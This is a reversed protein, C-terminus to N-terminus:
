IYNPEAKDTRFFNEWYNAPPIFRVQTKLQQEVQDPSMYTIENIARRAYIEFREMLERENYVTDKYGTGIMKARVYNYIAEKYNENDPILPLGNEDSPRAMYHLRVKGDSFSTLLYDLEVGYYNTPQPNCTQQNLNNTVPQIDSKYMLNNEDYYTQNPTAEIISKFLPTDLLNSSSTSRLDHGTAYNKVTNSTGLRIGNYEVAEIYELDCPLKGKHFVINVDEFKPSLDRNVQMYGMAEPIWENFDAIYSSDQIRTNRIIRAIVQDISCSKYIM